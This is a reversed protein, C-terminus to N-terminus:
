FISLLNFSLYDSAKFLLISLIFELVVVCFLFNEMLSKKLLHSWIQLKRSFKMQQVTYLKYFYYQPLFLLVFLYFRKDDCIYFNSTVGVSLFFFFVNASTPLEIIQLTELRLTFKAKMDCVLIFLLNSRNVAM